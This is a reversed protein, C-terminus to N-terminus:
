GPCTFDLHIITDGAAPALLTLAEPEEKLQEYLSESGEREEVKTFIEFMAAEPGEVDEKPEEHTDEEVEEKAEEKSDELTQELSLM